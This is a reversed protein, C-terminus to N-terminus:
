MTPVLGGQDSTAVKNHLPGLPDQRTGFELTVCIFINATLIRHKTNDIYVFLHMFIKYNQTYFQSDSLTLVLVTNM